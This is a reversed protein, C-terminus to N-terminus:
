LGSNKGNAIISMILGSSQTAGTRVINAQICAFDITGFDYGLAQTTGTPVMTVTGTSTNVYNTYNVCDNSVQWTLAVTASYSSSTLIFTDAATKVQSSTLLIFTGDAVGALTMTSVNPLKAFGAVAGTSTSSLGFSTPTVPILYYTTGTTLGTLSSNPTSFGLPLGVMPTKGTTWFAGTSSIVTTNILYSSNTGGSMSGNAVNTGSSTYPKLTLAGQTSSYTAYNTNLGVSTSTTYIVGCPHGAIGCGAPATSVVILGLNGFTFTSNIVKSINNATIASSAGVTFQTGACLQVGNIGLCAADQGGTFTASNVTISSVNSSLTWSNTFTGTLTTTSFVSSSTLNSTSLLVPIVTNMQTVIDAATDSTVDVRWRGGNCVTYPSGNFFSICANTLGNTTLVTLFDSATATSLSSSNIVALQDVFGQNLNVPVTKSVTLGSENDIASNLKVTASFVPSIFLLLAALIKKM